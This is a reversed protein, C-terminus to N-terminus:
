DRTGTESFINEPFQHFRKCAPSIMAPASSCLLASCFLSSCLPGIIPLAPTSTVENARKQRRQQQRPSRLSRATFDGTPQSATHTPLPPLPSPSIVDTRHAYNATYFSLILREYRQVVSSLRQCISEPVTCRSQGTQGDCVRICWM